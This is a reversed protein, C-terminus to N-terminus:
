PEDALAEEVALSCGRPTAGPARGLLEIAAGHAIALDSTQLACATDLNAPDDIRLIGVEGDRRPRLTEPDVVTARVWGPVWLRRPPPPAGAVAARLTNEYMQSSLETMGYEAVIWAEDLGYRAALAARLADAAVERSRGKFGGTQMLRSGAPLAFRADGLADEAHVFAFSTGLLAVPLGAAEAERLARTLATADLRGDVWVWSAERGFWDEFRGLMYSLSSRPAEAPHPALLVLRVREVDPFLAYRAAARAARDYLSLDRLCHRGRAGHTTGSTLFVRVDRDPPHGAVRAHRFVDTPVAGGGLKRVVEVRTRQFHALDALLRDRAADDRRGDALRDILALVRERLEERALGM